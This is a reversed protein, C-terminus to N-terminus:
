FGTMMVKPTIKGSFSLSYGATMKAINKSKEKYFSIQLEVDTGLSKKKKKAEIVRPPLFWTLEWLCRRIVELAPNALAFRYQEQSEVKARAMNGGERNQRHSHCRRSCDQAPWDLSHRSIPAKGWTLVVAGQCCGTRQRPAVSPTCGEGWSRLQPEVEEHVFSFLILSSSFYCVGKIKKEPDKSSQQFM